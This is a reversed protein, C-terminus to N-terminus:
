GRQQQQEGEEKVGRIRKRCRFLVAHGTLVAHHVEM